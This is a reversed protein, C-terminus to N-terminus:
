ALTTGTPPGPASAVVGIHNEIPIGDAADAAISQALQKLYHTPVCGDLQVAGSGATSRLTRLALYPSVRFRDAIAEAAATALPQRDPHPSASRIASGDRELASSRVPGTEAGLRDRM